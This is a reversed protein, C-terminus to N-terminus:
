GKVVFPRIRRTPLGSRIRRNTRYFPPGTSPSLPRHLRPPESNTQADGANPPADGLFQISILSLQLGHLSNLIGSLETQDTVNGQLVTLGSDPADNNHASRGTTSVPLNKPMAAIGKIPANIAGILLQAFM